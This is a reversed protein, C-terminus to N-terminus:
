PAASAMQGGFDPQRLGEHCNCFDDHDTGAYCLGQSEAQRARRDDGEKVVRELVDALLQKMGEVFRRIIEEERILGEEVFQNVLDTTHCKQIQGLSVIM